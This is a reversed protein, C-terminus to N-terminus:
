LGIVSHRVYAGHPSPIMTSYAWKTEQGFTTLLSQVLSTKNQETKRQKSKRTTNLITQIKLKDETRYKGAHVSM